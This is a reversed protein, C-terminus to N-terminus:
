DVVLTVNEIAADLNYLSTGAFLRTSSSYAASYFVSGNRAYSVRGAKITISFRDGDRYRIDARYIGRERVEAVGSQLRLGLVIDAAAPIAQTRTFGALLMAWSSRVTFDMHADGGGSHEESISGADPCGNCGATKTIRSGSATINKTVQWHVAGASPNSSVAEPPTVVPPTVAPVTPRSYTGSDNTLDTVGTLLHDPVRVVFADLRSGGMNTTWLFYQGTIDLNGKAYRAYEDGGGSTDLNTMLPAVVVSTSSGDMNFCVIENAHIGNGRNVSSGCAYQREPAVGRQANTHSVHAPAFVNWDKNYYVRKGKLTQENFDWVKWTNADPAWNDAAIMYGHGMDSHGAAGDKDRLLRENGTRLNVILNDEGDRGDLNAKIVLWEGSRDVQCEDFDQTIPYFHYRKSDEEYAMCGMVRYNASNRVTASHVRDNDSTHMQTLLVGSGFQNSIDVVTRLEETIVDFRSIRPGDNVYLTTPMTASFYWGEGTAWSLRNNSPFLPGLDKLEGSAKNLEFLTPGKGGRTQDLGLFILMSEMGVHNNMNRWYSYGAYNVCDNGACDSANTLRVAETNYPAPFTFAGRPPIFNRLANANMLARASANNPTELFGGKGPQAAVLGAQSLTFVAAVACVGKVMFKRELM